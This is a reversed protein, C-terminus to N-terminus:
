FDTLVWSISFCYLGNSLTTHNLAYWRSHERDGVGFNEGM